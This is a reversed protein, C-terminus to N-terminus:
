LIDEQEPDHCYLLRWPGEKYTDIFQQSKQPDCSSGTPVGRQICAALYCEDGVILSDGAQVICSGASHGGWRIVEVGEAVTLRETFTRVLMTDPIFSKAKVHEEQQIYVTANAFHGVGEVHDHHAHTIIVDTIDGATVGFREIAKAPSIHDRMDFGPMTDCGADVLIRREEVKILYLTFSIPLYVGARGDRFILREELTSYAYTVPHITLAKMRM